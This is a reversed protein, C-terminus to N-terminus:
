ILDGEEELDRFNIRPRYLVQLYMRSNRANALSEFEKAELGVNTEVDDNEGLDIDIDIEEESGADDRQKGKRVSAWFKEDSSDSDDTMNMDENGRYAMMDPRSEPAQNEPIPMTKDGGTSLEGSRRITQLEEDQSKFMEEFQKMQAAIDTLQTKYQNV